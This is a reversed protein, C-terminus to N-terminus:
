KPQIFTYGVTWEVFDAAAKHAKISVGMYAENLIRYRVGMRLFVPDSEGNFRNRHVYCGVNGNLYLRSTLFHDINFAPGGSFLAGFTAANSGAQRPDGGSQSYFVNAGFGLRWKYSVPRNWFVGLTSKIYRDGRYSFQKIGTAISVDFENNEQLPPISDKDFDFRKPVPQYTLAVTLPVLNIGTNPKRIAGNSFHHFAFGAGIQLHNAMRYNAQLGLDIFVNRHTGLLTNFPNNEEDYPEFNSALGLSIRYNFDWRRFRGPKIPIAVFGYLANPTGIAEKRFTSSYLGIGYIPYNFLQHHVDKGQETQWGIRLNLGNYYIEGLDDRVQQNKYLMGGNEIELQILLNSVRSTKAETALSSSQEHRPTVQASVSGLLSSLCGVLALRILKSLNSPLLLRSDKGSFVHTSLMRTCVYGNNQRRFYPSEPYFKDTYHIKETKRINPVDNDRYWPCYLSEEFINAVHTM